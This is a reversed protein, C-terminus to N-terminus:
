SSRRPASAAGRAQRLLYSPSEGFCSRYYGAFRGLHTFGLRTAVTTVDVCQEALMERAILLKRERAFRKVSIGTTARFSERIWRESFGLRCSLERMSIFRDPEADILAIVAATVEYREVGFARNSGAAVVGSLISALNERAVEARLDASEAAEFSRVWPVAVPARAYCLRQSSKRDVLVSSDLGLRTIVSKAYAVAVIECGGEFRLYGHQRPPLAIASLKPLTHGCWYIDTLPVAITLWDDLTTYEELCPVLYRIRRVSIDSLDVGRQDVTIRGESVSHRRVTMGPLASSASGTTTPEAM